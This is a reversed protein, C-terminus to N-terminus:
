AAGSAVVQCQLRGALAGIERHDGVGARKRDARLTAAWSAAEGLRGADVPLRDRDRRRFAPPARRWWCRSALRRRSHVDLWKLHRRFRALPVEEPPYLWLFLFIALALVGAGQGPM